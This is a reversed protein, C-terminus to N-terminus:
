GAPRSCLWIQSPLAELTGVVTQQPGLDKEASSSGLWDTKAQVTESYKEMGHVPTQIQEQQTEYPEQQGMGRTQLPGELHHGLLRHMVKADDAPQFLTFEM